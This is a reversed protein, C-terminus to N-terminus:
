LTKSHQHEMADEIYSILENLSYPRRMYGFAGLNMCELARGIMINDTFTIVKSLIQKRKILNMIDIGNMKPMGIDLLIVHHYDGNLKEFFSEVNGAATVSYGAKSLYNTLFLRMAGNNEAVLIKGKNM